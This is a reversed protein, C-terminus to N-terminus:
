SLPEEIPLLAGIVKTEKEGRRHVVSPAPRPTTHVSHKGRRLSSRDEALTLYRPHENQIKKKMSGNRDRCIVGFRSGARAHATFPPKGRAPTEPVRMPAVTSPEVRCVPRPLYKERFMRWSCGM